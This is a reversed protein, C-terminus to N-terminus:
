MEGKTLTLKTEFDKLNNRNESNSQIMKNSEVYKSRM